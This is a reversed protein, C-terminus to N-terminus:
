CSVTYTTSCIRHGAGNRPTWWPCGKGTRNSVCAKGQPGKDGSVGPPGSPGQPGRPGQKGIDGQKGQYALPDYYGCILKGEKIQVPYGPTGPFGSITLPPCGDSDLSKANLQKFSSLDHVASFKYVSVKDEWTIPKGAPTEKDRHDKIEATIKIMDPGENAGCSSICIARISIYIGLSCSPSTIDKCRKGTYSYYTPTAADSIIGDSDLEGIFALSFRDDPKKITLGQDSDLKCNGYFKAGPGFNSPICGRLLPNDERVQTSLFEKNSILSQISERFMSSTEYISISKVQLNSNEQTQMSMYGVGTMLVLGVLIEMLTM